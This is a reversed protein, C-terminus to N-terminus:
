LHRHTITRLAELKRRAVPTAPRSELKALLQGARELVRSEIRRYTGAFLQDPAEAFIVVYALATEFAPERGFHEYRSVRTGSEGGLLFAMEDQTLYVRKRFTRLYNPLKSAM